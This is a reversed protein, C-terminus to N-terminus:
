EDRLEGKIEDIGDEIYGLREDTRIVADEVSRVRSEHDEVDHCVGNVRDEIRGVSAWSMGMGFIVTILVLIISIAALWTKTTGNMVPKSTM